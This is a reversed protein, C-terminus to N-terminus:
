GHDPLCYLQGDTRLIFVDWTWFFDDRANCAVGRPRYFWRRLQSPTEIRLMWNWGLLSCLEDKQTLQFRSQYLSVKQGNELVPLPKLTWM